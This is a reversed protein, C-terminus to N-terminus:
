DIKEIFKKLRNANEVAWGEADNNFYAYVAMGKQIKEKILQSYFKLEEDNYSSRFLSQSGHFRIYFFSATDVNVYPWLRQDSKNKKLLGNKISSDSLVLAANHNKLVEYFDDSFWSQHRFEFAYLFDRPLIKIFRILKIKDGKLSPPTQILVLTKTKKNKLPNLCKFFVDLSKEEVALRKIHTIFRSMKFSFVFDKPVQSIWNEVTKPKLIHYFSSNIEVTNFYKSYFSLTEDRKLDEPYFNGVWHPYYFGSTGIFIKTM